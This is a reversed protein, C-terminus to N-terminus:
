VSIGSNAIAKCKERLVMASDIDIYPRNYTPIKQWDESEQLKKVHEILQPATMNNIETITM